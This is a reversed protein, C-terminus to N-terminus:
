QDAWYRNHAATEWTMDAEGAKHLYKDNTRVVPRTHCLAKKKLHIRACPRLGYVSPPELFAEPGTPMGRFLGELSIQANVSPGRLSVSIWALRGRGIALLVLVCGVLDTYRGVRGVSTYGPERQSPTKPRTDTARKVTSLKEHLSLWRFRSQSRCSVHHTFNEVKRVTMM